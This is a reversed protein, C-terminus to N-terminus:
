QLVFRLALGFRGAEFDSGHTLQIIPRWDFGLNLPAEPIKFELGAFPRLLVDSGGGYYSSSYLAIQPGIGANWKLGGANRIASNYSYEAGILTTHNGFLVSAEGAGTPSFFHKIAPGVYTGGNGLDLRLGLATSYDSGKQASAAGALLLSALIALCTACLFKNKM